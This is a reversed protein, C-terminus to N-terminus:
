KLRGALATITALATGFEPREKGYVMDRVFTAYRAAFGAESALGAVARRTEAVPNNRYAPFRHGYAEADAPIIARALEIADAADYHARTVHLDYIYIHRV